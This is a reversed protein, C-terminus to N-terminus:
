RAVGGLKDPNRVMYIAEIRTVGLQEGIMFTIVSFVNDDEYTVLALHTNFHQIEMRYRAQESLPMKRWKGWFGLLFKAVADRGYLPRTAASVKGGGDSINTVGEALIALLGEMDGTGVAQMFQSLIANHADPTSIYRPKHTAIHQKARHLLQRCASEEKNLFTAIEDYGYEFVEHLLFVARESPSLQQLLLVFAMSLTEDSEDPATAFPEPLWEGYYQERQVQASKLHDLCLHTVVKCYYAKANQLNQATHTRIYADQVIDEAEMVSGTMRYALTFLLRRYNEFTNPTNGINDM